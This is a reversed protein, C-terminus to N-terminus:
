ALSVMSIVIVDGSWMTEAMAVSIPALRMVMSLSSASPAIPIGRQLTGPSLPKASHGLPIIPAKAIEAYGSQDALNGMMEEFTNQAGTAPDWNNSFAPAVWVMAVGLKKMQAQFKPNKYIAEETMNQQSLM